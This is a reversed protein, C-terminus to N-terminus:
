QQMRKSESTICIIRLSITKFKIVCNYLLMLWLHSAISTQFLMDAIRQIM